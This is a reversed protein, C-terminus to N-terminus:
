TSVLLPIGTETKQSFKKTQEGRLLWSSWANFDAYWNQQILQNVVKEHEIICSPATHLDFISNCPYNCNWYPITTTSSSIRVIFLTFVSIVQIM